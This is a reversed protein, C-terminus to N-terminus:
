TELSCASIALGQWLWPLVPAAADKTATTQKSVFSWARVDTRGQKRGRREKPKEATTEMISDGSM